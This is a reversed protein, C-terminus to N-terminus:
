TTNSRYSLLLPLLLLQQPPSLNCHKRVHHIRQSPRLSSGEHIPRLFSAVRLLQLVQISPHSVKVSHKLLLKSHVGLQQRSTPSCSPQAGATHHQELGRKPPSDVKNEPHSTKLLLHPPTIHHYSPLALEISLSKLALYHLTNELATQM